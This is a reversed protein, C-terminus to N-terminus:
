KVQGGDRAFMVRDRPSTHKWFFKRAIGNLIDLCATWQIMVLTWKQGHGIHPEKERVSVQM